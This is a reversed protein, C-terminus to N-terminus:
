VRGVDPQRGVLASIPGVGKPLKWPKGLTFDWEPPDLLLIAASHLTTLEGFWVRGDVLFLDVRLFDFGASVTEAIRIAEDLEPPRPAPDAMPGTSTKIPLCNWDRDYHNVLPVPGGRRVHVIVEVRGGYCNFKLDDPPVGADSGIFHEAIVAHAVQTYVWERQWKPQQHQLWEAVLAAMAARDVAEGRRWTRRLQSGDNIKLIFAEPLVLRYVDAPDRILGILPILNVDTGLRAQVFARAEYKGAVQAYIARRDFLM